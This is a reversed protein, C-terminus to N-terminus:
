AGSGVVAFIETVFASSPVPAGSMLPLNVNVSTPALALVGIGASLLKVLGSESPPVAVNQGIVYVDTPVYVYVTVSLPVTSPISFSGTGLFDTFTFTSSLPLPCSTALIVSPSLRVNVFM